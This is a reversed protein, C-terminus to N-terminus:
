MQLICELAGPDFKAGKMKAGQFLIKKEQILNLFSSCSTGYLPPQHSQGNTLLPGLTLARCQRFDAMTLDANTFDVKVNCGFECGYFSAERLKTEVFSVNHVFATHVFSLGSLNKKDFDLNSKTMNRSCKNEVCHSEMTKSNLLGDIYEQTFDVPQPTPTLISEIIEFLGSLQFYDAERQIEKLVTVDNPFTDVHLDGRLYNLIFRFHTGDRDIFYTNEKSLVLKHRGSFMVALMSSKDRTLTSLSTSYIHGGVDLKIHSCQIDYINQMYQKEKELKTREEQIARRQEQKELELKSWEVNMKEEFKRKSIELELAVKKLERERKEFKEVVWKVGNDIDTKFEDHNDFSEAMKTNKTNQKTNEINQRHNQQGITWDTGQKQGHTTTSSPGVSERQRSLRQVSDM